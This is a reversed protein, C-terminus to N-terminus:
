EKQLVALIRKAERESAEEGGVCHVSITVENVLQMKGRQWRDEKLKYILTGSRYWVGVKKDEM